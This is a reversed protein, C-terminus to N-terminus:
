KRILIILIFVREKVILMKMLHLYFSEMGSDYECKEKLSVQPQVLGLQSSLLAQTM